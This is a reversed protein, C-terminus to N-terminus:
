RHAGADAPRFSARFAADAIAETRGDAYTVIWDGDTVAQRGDTTLLYPAHPARAHFSVGTDLDMGIFGIRAYVAAQDFRVADVTRGDRQFKM